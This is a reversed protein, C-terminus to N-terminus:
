NECDLMQEDVVQQESNNVFELDSPMEIDKEKIFGKIKILEAEMRQTKSPKPPRMLTNAVCARKSQKAPHLGTFAGRYIAFM